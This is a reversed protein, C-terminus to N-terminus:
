WGLVVTCVCTVALVATMRYHHFYASVVAALVQGVLLLAPGNAAAWSAAAMWDVTM